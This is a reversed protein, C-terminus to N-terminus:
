RRTVKLVESYFFFLYFLIFIFFNLVNVKSRKLKNGFNQGIKDNFHLLSLYLFCSAFFDVFTIIWVIKMRLSMQMLVCFQGFFLPCHYISLLHKMKFCLLKLLFIPHRASTHYPQSFSYSYRAKQMDCSYSFSMFIFKNM